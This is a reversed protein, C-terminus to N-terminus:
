KQEQQAMIEGEPTVHTHCGSCSVQAAFMESPMNVPDRGGIGMYMQKPRNHQRLHCNECQIELASAMAFNGHEIDTHCRYCDIGNTTVHIDHLEARSVQQRSREVHCDYCMREPVSGDGSVINIHCKKCAVGLQLYPEHNFIFGAHEVEKKPMGHCSNCGTIAEGVGADKFHCVFCAKNNVVMHGEQDDDYQVVQNHCSTCRLKEGRLIQNKHKGHDFRIGRLYEITGELTGTDHCDAALCNEDHVNAKPRSTYTGTFYKVASITLDAAGYDHCKYCEVESHTSAQWHRVYPDMYHCADCFSAQRVEYSLIAAAVIVVVLCVAVLVALAKRYRRCLECVDRLFKIM